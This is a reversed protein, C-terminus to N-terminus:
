VVSKRDGTCSTTDVTVRGDRSTQGPEVRFADLMRQRLEVSGAMVDTVNDSFRVHYRGKSETEFFAYFGAVGEVQARSLKLADALLTLTRPSAHGMQEMVDRLIQVLRGPERGHHTLIGDLTPDPSPTM